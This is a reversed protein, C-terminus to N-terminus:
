FTPECSAPVVMLSASNSYASRSADIRDETVKTPHPKKCGLRRRAWEDSALKSSLQTKRTGTTSSAVVRSSPISRISSPSTLPTMTTSELPLSLRSNSLGRTAAASEPIPTRKASTGCTM